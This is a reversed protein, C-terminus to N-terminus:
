RNIKVWNVPPEEPDKQDFASRTELYFGMQMNEYIASPSVRWLVPTYNSKYKILCNSSRTCELAMLASGRLTEIHLRVNLQSIEDINDRNLLKTLPPTRCVLRM